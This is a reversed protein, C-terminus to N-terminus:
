ATAREDDQQQRRNPRRVAHIIRRAHHQTRDKAKLHLAYLMEVRRDREVTMISIFCLVLTVIVLLMNSLIIMLEVGHAALFGSTGASETSESLITTMTQLM